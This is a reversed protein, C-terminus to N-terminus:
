SKRKKYINYILHLLILDIQVVHGCSKEKPILFTWNEVAYCDRAVRWHDRGLLQNQPLSRSWFRRPRANLLRSLLAAINLMKLNM